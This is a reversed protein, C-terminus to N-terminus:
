GQYLSNAVLSDFDIDATIQLTKNQIKLNSGLGIEDADGKSEDARGLLSNGKMVIAHEDNWNSPRILSADNGDPKTSTFKHKIEM